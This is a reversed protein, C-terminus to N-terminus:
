LDERGCLVANYEIPIIVWIVTGRLPSDPIFNSNREKERIFGQGVPANRNDQLYFRFCSIPIQGAPFQVCHFIPTQRATTVASNFISFAFHFIITDGEAITLIM